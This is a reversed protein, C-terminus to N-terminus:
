VEPSLSEPLDPEAADYRLSRAYLAPSLVRAAIEDCALERTGDIRSKILAAAPHFSIPLWMLEFIVNLLFDHRRIHALEHCVASIMEQESASEAFGAPVLLLPRRMGITVPGVGDTLHTAPTRRLGIEHSYRQVIDALPGATLPTTKM